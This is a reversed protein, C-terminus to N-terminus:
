TKRQPSEEQQRNQRGTLANRIQASRARFGARQRSSLVLLRHAAFECARWLQRGGLAAGQKDAHVLICPHEGGFGVIQAGKM